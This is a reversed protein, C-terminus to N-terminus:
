SPSSRAPPLALTSASIAFSRASAVVVSLPGSAGVESAPSALEGDPESGADGCRGGRASAALGSDPRERSSAEMAREMAANSKELAKKAERVSKEIADKAKKEKLWQALCPAHYCHDCPLPVYEDGEELAELGAHGRHPADDLGLDRHGHHM